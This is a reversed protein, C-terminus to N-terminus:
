RSKCFEVSFCYCISLVFCLSLSAIGRQFTFNTIHDHCFLNIGHGLVIDYVDSLV